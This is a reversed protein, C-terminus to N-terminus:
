SRVAAVAEDYLAAMDARGDTAMWAAAAVDICCLATAVIASASLGPNPGPARPEILPVLAEQWHSRKEFLRARLSPAEHMIRGIAIDAVPDNFTEPASDLLAARLAEWPGESAPRRSLAGAVADGRAAVDGLVVDEKTGFYRFFTRRSIGAREAIEDVTVADFGREVFLDRATTVIEARVAAQQRQWASGAKM